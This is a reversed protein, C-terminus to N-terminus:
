CNREANKRLMQKESLLEREGFLSPQLRTHSSLGATVVRYPRWAGGGIRPPELEEGVAM